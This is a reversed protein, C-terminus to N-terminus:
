AIHNFTNPTHTHTDIKIKKWSSFLSLKRYWIFPHSFLYALWPIGYDDDYQVMTNNIWFFAFFFIKKDSGDNRKMENWKRYKIEDM